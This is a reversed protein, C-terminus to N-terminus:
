RGLKNPAPLANWQRAQTGSLIVFISLWSINQVATIMDVVVTM